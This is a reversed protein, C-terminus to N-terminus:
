QAGEILDSPDETEELTLYIEYFHNLHRTLKYLVLVYRDILRKIIHNLFYWMTRRAYHNMASESSDLGNPLHSAM